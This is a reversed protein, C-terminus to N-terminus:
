HTQIGRQLGAMPRAKWGGPSPVRIAGNLLDRKGASVPVLGTLFDKIRFGLDLRPNTRGSETTTARAAISEKAGAGEATAPVAVTVGASNSVQRSSLILSARAATPARRRMM